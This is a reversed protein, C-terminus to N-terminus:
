YLDAKPKQACAQPPSLPNRSFHAPAPGMDKDKIVGELLVTEVLSYTVRSSSNGPQRRHPVTCAVRPVPQEQLCNYATIGVHKRLFRSQPLSVQFPLQAISLFPCMKAPGSGCKLCTGEATHVLVILHGTRSTEHSSLHQLGLIVQQTIVSYGRLWKWTDEKGKLTISACCAHSSGWATLSM